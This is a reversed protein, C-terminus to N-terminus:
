AARRAARADMLRNFAQIDQRHRRHVQYRRWLGMLNGIMAGGYLDFRRCKGRWRRALSLRRGHETSPLIM